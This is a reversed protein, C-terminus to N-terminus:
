SRIREEVCALYQRKEGGEGEKWATKYPGHEDPENPCVLGRSVNCMLVAGCEPCAWQKREDVANGETICIVYRHILIRAFFRREFVLCPLTIVVLSPCFSFTNYKKM